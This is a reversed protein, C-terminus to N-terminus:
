FEALKFAGIEFAGIDFGGFGQNRVVGRQDTSPCGNTGCIFAPIADYAPSTTLIAHTQTAGGNSALAQLQPSVNTQDGMGPVPLCTTGADLNHGLSSVTSMALKCGASGQDVISHKLSLSSNTLDFAANGSLNRAVTVHLLRVTGSGYIAGGMEARNGSLTVNTLSLSGSSIQVHIGGGRYALNGSITSNRITAPGGLTLGGGRVGLCSAGSSQTCARNNRIVSDSMELADVGAWAHVAYIGGHHQNSSNSEVRSRILVLKGRSWIGGGSVTQVSSVVNLGVVSDEITLVGANRIGGGYQNSAPVHGVRGNRITVRRITVEDFVDFIRDDSVGDIITAAAGAGEIVIKGRVDLDGTAALDENPGRLDLRYIGAPVVIRYTPRVGFWPLAAQKNALQVAARLSCPPVIMSGTTCSLSQAPTDQTTNVRYDGAVLLQAAGLTATLQLLKMFNEGT